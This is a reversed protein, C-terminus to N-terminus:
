SDARDSPFIKGNMCLVPVYFIRVQNILRWIRIVSCHFFFEPIRHLSFTSYLIHLDETYSLVRDLANLSIKKWQVHPSCAFGAQFTISLITTCFDKMYIPQGNTEWDYCCYGVQKCAKILQRVEAKTTLIQTKTRM